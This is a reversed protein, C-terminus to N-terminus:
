HHCNGGIKNNKKLLQLQEHIFPKQRDLNSEKETQLERHQKLGPFHRPDKKLGNDISLVSLHVSSKM